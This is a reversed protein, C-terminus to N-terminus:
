VQLRSWDIHMPRDYTTHSYIPVTGGPPSILMSELFFFRVASRSQGWKSVSRHGPMGIQKAIPFGSVVFHASM